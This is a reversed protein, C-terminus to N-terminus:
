PLTAPDGDAARALMPVLGELATPLSLVSSVQLADDVEGGVYLARGQRTAALQRVAPDAEIAAKGGDTFQLQSWVLVDRDILDLQELSISGFFSDDAIEALEAPIAMGLSTFFRGRLDDPAFFLVEDGGYFVSAVTLGDFEPNAERAAAFQEEVDSVVDRAREPEGLAEGILETIDQWPMGFDVFEESQAVTPAIASLTDYEQQTIGSTVALVLDPDLAAIEEFNLAGFEYNLVQPDAGGAAQEAWPRVASTTDGFQPYRAAVPTEGLALVFDLETYGLAVIRQPDPPVETTGFTHQVEIPAGVDDQRSDQDSGANSSSGCASLALSLSAAAFTLATIRRLRTDPM